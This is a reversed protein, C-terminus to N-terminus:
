SKELVDVIQKTKITDFSLDDLVIIEQELVKSSLASKLALRKVKKNITFSYTEQNQGLYLEM